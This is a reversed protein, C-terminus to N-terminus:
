PFIGRSIYDNAVKNLASVFAATRMDQIKKKRKYIERIQQYATIMTEELGSRVLDIEDAGRAVLAKERDGLQKGTMNLVLQVINDYNQQNFRKEMRGFRMHSLNKLWEFYSVTVGGANLYMDPVVLIGKKLLVEEADATVPGNAAEGIIKAKIKAANGIHIQSELAAPVLIDCELELASTRDKLTKTGPFGLISGTEKRFKVLEGVNIGKESYISGEYEAIGIVKVDGEEQCITGTFAGVNGLGQIVMTKGAMGTTLGLKNMDDKFNCAERLGYYVGRGTAEDRGRIGNQDVPKGTVCAAGDIEGHNFSLYTDLIWAMERSGTGYDPAPVDIGPGIFNKRILEAAYRRTIKELQNTTYKRPSIKVGGKAGGFPVDVIACKYTMLSALAMVEEQNVHISYRIGGKTPLRHHSHQVRYAEITQYENGIKVPFRMSYVSNCVKIQELLGKHLDTHGAAKDFNKQVSEYFSIDGVKM